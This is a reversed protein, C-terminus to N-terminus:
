EPFSLNEEYFNLLKIPAKIHIEDSLCVGRNGDVMVYEVELKGAPTKSVGTVRKIKNGWENTVAPAFVLADKKVIEKRPSRKSTERMPSQRLAEKMPSKKPTGKMPSQRLAEKKVPKKKDAAKRKFYEKKLDECLVNEENEWTNETSPFGLWKIWFQRKGNVMRDKVISEVDYVCEESSSM